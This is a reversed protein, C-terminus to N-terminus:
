PKPPTKAYNAKMLDQMRSQLRKKSFKDLKRENDNQENEKNVLSKLVNKPEYNPMTKVKTQYEKEMRYQRGKTKLNENYLYEEEEYDEDLEGM